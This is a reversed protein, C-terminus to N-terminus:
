WWSPPLSLGSAKRSSGGHLHLNSFDTQHGPLAGLAFLTGVVLFVVITAVKIGAFWFEFEGFSSVSFLNTATMLLM